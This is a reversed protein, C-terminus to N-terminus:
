PGVWVYLTMHGRLCQREIRKEGRLLSSLLGPTVRVGCSRGNGAGGGSPRTPRFSSSTSAM